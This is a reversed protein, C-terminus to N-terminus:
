GGAGAAGCGGHKKSRIRLSHLDDGPERALERVVGRAKCALQTVLAAYQVAMEHELTSRIPVGDANIIVVGQVGKHSFLRKVTEEVVALDAMQAGFDSIFVFRLASLYYYYLLSFFSEAKRLGVKSKAPRPRPGPAACLRTPPM